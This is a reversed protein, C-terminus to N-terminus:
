AFVKELSNYSLEKTGSKVPMGSLPMTIYFSSGKNEESEFWILGGVANIISKAIYLGLGTGEPDKLKANDARFLKGFIKDKQAEPIGYGGDKVKLLVSDETVKRGAVEEGAKVIKLEVEITGAPLSYKVANALLNQVVIKFLKPDAKVEPIQNDYSESLEIKKYVIQPKLEKVVDKVVKEIMIEEPEITFTGLDIRSVNLLANVLDVMRRNAEHIEELYKKQSPDVAGLDGSLLMESYWNVASLPTRLQHSALSVFESKAVDIAKEKTIDKFVDVAGTIEGDIILPSITLYVPIVGGDKKTYFYDGSSIKEGSSLVTKIPRNEVVNGLGDKVLWVEPLPKGLMDKEEWGLISSSEPNALVIIGNKDVVVVGDGISKLIAEDKTKEEVLRLAETALEEEVKKKETADRFNVVIGKISPVNLANTAVGEMWRLEGSRTKVKFAWNISEGPNRIRGFQAMARSKDVEDVFSVLSRGVIENVSLGIIKEANASAYLVTGEADLVSFADSSNEVLAKFRAESDSLAQDAQVSETIDDELGVFGILSNADDLIPSIVVRSVYAQGNKRKNNIIGRFTKKEDKITHWLQRYFDKEMQGGWLRPNAGILEEHSYGTINEVAKNAFLIRGDPDCIIIHSSSSEVALKYDRLDGLMLEAIRLANMRSRAVVLFLASLILGFVIGFTLVLGPLLVQDKGLTSEINSSFYMTWTHGLSSFKDLYSADVGGKKSLGFKSSDSDYYLNDLNTNDGDFIEVDIGPAGIRAILETIFQDKQFTTVVYGVVEHSIASGELPVEGKKYVAAVIAFVTKDPEILSAFGNSVVPEGTEGAKKFVSSEIRDVSPDKGVVSVQKALFSDYKIVLNSGTHNKDLFRYDPYYLNMEKEFIKEQGPRVVSVFYIDELSKYRESPNINKIYSDFEDKTVQDSAIFLGKVYAVLRGASNLDYQIQKEILLRNDSFRHVFETQIDTRIRFFLILSLFGVLCFVLIVLLYLWVGNSRGGAKSQFALSEM